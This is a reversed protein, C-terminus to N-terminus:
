KKNITEKLCTLFNSGQFSWEKKCYDLINIQKKQLFDCYRIGRNYGLYIWLMKEYLDNSESLCGQIWLKILGICFNVETDKFIFNKSWLDIDQSYYPFEISYNRNLLKICEEILPKESPIYFSNIQMLGLDLNIIGKNIHNQNCRSEARIIAELLLPIELKFKEKLKELKYQFEKKNIFDLVKPNICECETGFDCFNEDKSNLPINKFVIPLPYYPNKVVKCDYPCYFREYGECLNNENCIAYRSLDYKFVIKKNSINRILFYGINLFKPIDIFNQSDNIHAFYALLPQHKLSYVEIMYESSNEKQRKFFDELNNIVVVDFDLFEFFQPKILKLNSDSDKKFYFRYGPLVQSNKLNALIRERSLWNKYAKITLAFFLFLFILLIINRVKKLTLM